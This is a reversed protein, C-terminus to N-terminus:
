NFKPVYVQLPGPGLSFKVSGHGAFDGDLQIAPKGRLPLIECSAARKCVFEGGIGPQFGRHRVACVLDRVISVSSREQFVIFDLMGDAHNAEPFMPWSGGYFMGNGAIVTHGEVCDGDDFVAKLHAWPECLAKFASIVYALSGWRVKFDRTTLEVARGDWGIGAMQLFPIGNACFVDVAEVQGDYYTQLAKDFNGSGIGIERAFVNVTGSPMVLLRTPTGALVSAATHLTGDGGAVAVVLTGCAVCKKLLEQLHSNSSPEVVDFIGKKSELWRRIPASRTGRAMPNLFLPIRDM